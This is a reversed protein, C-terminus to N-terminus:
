NSILNTCEENKRIKLNNAELLQKIEGIKHSVWHDGNFVKVMVYGLESISISEIIGTGSESEVEIKTKVSQSM